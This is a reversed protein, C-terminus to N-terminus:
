KDHSMFHRFDRIRKIIFNPTLFIFVYFCLYFKHPRFEEYIQKWYKKTIPLDHGKARLLVMVMAKPFGKLQKDIFHMDYGFSPLKQLLHKYGFFSFIEGGPKYAWGCSDNLLIAPFNFYSLRVGPQIMMKFIVEYYFWGIEYDTKDQGLWLERSFIFGSLVGRCYDFFIYPSRCSFINSEAPLANIVPVNSYDSFTKSGLSLIDISEKELQLILFLLLCPTILDDSGICWCYRGSAGSCANIVNPDFELNVSSQLYKINPYDKQFSEVLKQTNDTSANDSIIVEVMDLSPLTQIEEALNKLLHGLDAERNYTPICISLIPTQM